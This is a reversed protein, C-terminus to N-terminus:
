QETVRLALGGEVLHFSSSLESPANGVRAGSRLVRFGHFSEDQACSLDVVVEDFGSSVSPQIVLDGNGGNLLDAWEGEVLDLLFTILVEVGLQVEHLLFVLVLSGPTVDV